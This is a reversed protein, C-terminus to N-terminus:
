NKAVFCQGGQGQVRSCLSSADERSMPGVRVRFITNGNVEARRILPTAGGLDPFKQQLRQLTTRADAETPSVGLQVAFGDIPAADATASVSPAPAAPSIALPQAAALRQPASQPAPPAPTTSTPQQPSSGGSSAPVTPTAAAARPASASPTAPAAAAAPRPQVPTASPQPAPQGAQAAPPLTLPVQAASAAPRAPSPPSEPSIITGDPRISVTRVKRPEGLNLGHGASPAAPPVVPIVAAADAQNARRTAERVDVPQEERNV